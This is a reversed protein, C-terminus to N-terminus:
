RAGFAVQLPQQIAPLVGPPETAREVHIPGISATTGVMQGALNLVPLRADLSASFVGVNLAYDGPPAGPAISIQRRMILVEGPRWQASPYEFFTDGGWHFGLDDVLHAFFAYDDRDVPRLVRFYLTVDLTGGAAPPANLDFGLLALAHGLDIDLPYRPAPAPRHAADLWFAEYATGGDPGLERHLLADAPLYQERLLPDVPNTHDYILLAPSADAPPLVLTGGSLWRIEQYRQSTMALTAHQQFYTAVYPVAEPHADILRAAHILAENGKYYPAASPAWIYVYDRFTLWGEGALLAALLVPLLALSWRVRSLVGEVWRASAVIGLAPVIFVAPLLSMARLNHPVGSASLCM